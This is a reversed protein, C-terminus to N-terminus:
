ADVSLVSCLQVNVSGIVCCRSGIHLGELRCRFGAVGEHMTPVGCRTRSLSRRWSQRLLASLQWSPTWRMPQQKLQSLLVRQLVQKLQVQNGQLRVCPNVHLLLVAGSRLLVRMSTHSSEVDDKLNRVSYLIHLSM